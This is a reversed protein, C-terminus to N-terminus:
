WDIEAERCSGGQDDVRSAVLEGRELDQVHQFCSSCIDRVGDYRVQVPSDKVALTQQLEGLPATIKLIVQKTYLARMILYLHTPAPIVITM